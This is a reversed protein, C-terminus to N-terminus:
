PLDVKAPQAGQPFNPKRPRPYTCKPLRPYTCKQHSFFDLTLVSKPPFFLRPYTYKQLDLTLVSKAARRGKAKRGAVADDVAARRHTRESYVGGLALFALM